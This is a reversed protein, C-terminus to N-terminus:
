KCKACFILRFGNWIKKLIIEGDYDEEVPAYIPNDYRNGADFNKIRNKTNNKIDTRIFLDSPFLTRLESSCGQMAM